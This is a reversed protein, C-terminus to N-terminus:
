AGGGGRGAVWLALTAVPTSAPAPHRDPPGLGPHADEADEGDLAIYAVKFPTNRDALARALDLGATVNHTLNRYDPHRPANEIYGILVFLGPPASCLIAAACISSTMAGIQFETVREEIRM